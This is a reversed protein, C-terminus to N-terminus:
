CTQGQGCWRINCCFYHLHTTSTVQLMHPLREWFSGQLLLQEIGFDWIDQTYYQAAFDSQLMLPGALAASTSFPWVSGARGQPGRVDDLPFSDNDEIHMKSKPEPLDDLCVRNLEEPNPMDSQVWQEKSLLRESSASNSDLLALAKIEHAEKAAPATSMTMAIALFRLAAARVAHCESPQLAVQLFVVAIILM